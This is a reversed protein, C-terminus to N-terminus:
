ANSDSRVRCAFHGGASYEGIPCVWLALRRKWKLRALRHEGCGCPGCYHEGDKSQRFRCAACKKERARLEHKRVSGGLHAVVFSRAKYYWIALWQAARAIWLLFLSTEPLKVRPRPIQRYQKGHGNASIPAPIPTHTTEVELPVRETPAPAAHLDLMRNQFRLLESTVGFGNSM